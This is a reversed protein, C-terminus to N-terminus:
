GCPPTDSNSVPPFGISIAAEEGAAIPSLIKQLTPDSITVLTSTQDNTSFHEMCDRILREMHSALSGLTISDCDTCDVGNQEASCDQPAQKLQPLFETAARGCYEPSFHPVCLQHHAKIYQRSSLYIGGDRDQRRNHLETSSRFLAPILLAIQADYCRLYRDHLHQESTVM